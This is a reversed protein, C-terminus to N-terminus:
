KSFMQNFFENKHTARRSSNFSEPIKASKGKESRPKWDVSGNQDQMNAVLLTRSFCHGNQYTKHIYPRRM